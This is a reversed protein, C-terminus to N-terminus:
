EAAMIRNHDGADVTAVVYNSDDITVVAKRGAHDDVIDPRVSASAASRPHPSGKQRVTSHYCVGGLSTRRANCKSAAATDDPIILWV